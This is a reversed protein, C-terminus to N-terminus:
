AIAVTATGVQRHVEISIAACRTSALVRISLSPQPNSM